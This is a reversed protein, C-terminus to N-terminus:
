HQLQLHTVEIYQELFLNFNFILDFLGNGLKSQEHLDNISLSLMAEIKGAFVNTASILTQNGQIFYNKMFSEQSSLEIFAAIHEVELILHNCIEAITMRNFQDIELSTVVLNDQIQQRYNMANLALDQLEHLLESKQLYDKKMVALLRRQSWENSSDVAEIMDKMFDEIMIRQDGFNLSVSLRDSYIDFPVAFEKMIHILQSVKTRHKVFGLLEESEHLSTYNTQYQNAGFNLAQAGLFTTLATVLWKSTNLTGKIFSQLLGQTLNTDIKIDDKKILEGTFAFHSQLWMLGIVGSTATAVMAMKKIYRVHTNYAEIEVAKQLTDDSIRLIQYQDSSVVVHTIMLLTLIFKKM